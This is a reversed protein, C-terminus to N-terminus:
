RPAEGAAHDALDLMALIRGLAAADFLAPVRIV